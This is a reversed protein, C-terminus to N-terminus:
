VQLISHLSHVCVAARLSLKCFFASFHSMCVLSWACLTFTFPVQTKKQMLMNKKENMLKYVAYACTSILWNYIHTDLNTLLNWLFAILYPKHSKNNCPFRSCKLFLLFGQRSKWFNWSMMMLMMSMSLSSPIRLTTSRRLSADPKPNEIM